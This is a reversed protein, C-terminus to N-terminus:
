AFGRDRMLAKTDVDRGMFNRYAIAPDITNGVSLIQKQFLAATDGVFPGGKAWFHEVVDAVLSDSWLYSYYGASYGDGSFVHGFQPTRHRMVIEKPMGLKDLEEKEFRAPDIDAGGALHLKMDILAASLYEVTKFGQNFKDAKNLKDILAQPIPEGTKYHLCFQTLVEPTKLWHENIQSPFEVFDRAVSTGSLSIYTCNASLGHIAHGFEHFLTEADDWSILTVEGAVPKIFNSNNSVITIVEKGHIRSQARYADMWAGSRKGARAYPDFYWLGIVKGGKTVKYTTVDAHFVPIGEVKEFVFGYMKGAAWFMGERLKELQMYPKLANDDFDYRAKRVKEAYFRYDWPAITIGAKESDALAQMDAVEEHVRNVAAPWVSEMLAMANDPNKAMANELRWHAHTKFGLLQAREFRLKLIKSILPKNDYEGPNDGRMIFATYIKQRMARNTSNTLFPEMASRTNAFAYQGEKGMEKARTAASAIFGDKLGALDDKTLLTVQEEDHLQNASFKDYLSALESNIAAIRTKAEASLAAGSRVFGTYTRWLLRDQEPTLKLSDKKDYVAKVRAFLEKNQTVEDDFAALVPSMKESVKQFEPSSLSGDWISYVTLTRNLALGSLELTVITNEFDPAAKNSTIAKLEARNLDMAKLIAPEFDAIKVKDFAPVGGYGGAWPDILYGYPSVAKVAAEAASLGMVADLAPLAAASAMLGLTARRDLNPKITM